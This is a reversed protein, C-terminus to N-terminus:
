KPAIFGYSVALRTTQRCLATKQSETMSDQDYKKGDTFLSLQSPFSLDDPRVREDIFEELAKQNFSLGCYEEAALLGGLHLALQTSDIDQARSGSIPLLHLTAFFTVAFCKKM